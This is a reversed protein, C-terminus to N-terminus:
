RQSRETKTAKHLSERITSLPPVGQQQACAEKQPPKEQPSACLRPTCAENAACVSGTATARRSLQEVAHPIKGSWLNFGHAQM